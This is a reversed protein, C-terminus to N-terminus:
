MTYAPKICRVAASELNACLILKTFHPAPPSLVFLLSLKAQLAFHPKTRKKLVSNLRTGTRMAESHLAAATM